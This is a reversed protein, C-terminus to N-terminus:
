KGLTDRPFMSMQHLSRLTGFRGDGRPQPLITLVQIFVDSM